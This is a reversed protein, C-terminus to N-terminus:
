GSLCPEEEPQRFRFGAAYRREFLPEDEPSPLPRVVPEMVTASLALEVRRRSPESTDAPPAAAILEELNRHVTTLFYDDGMFLSPWPGSRRVLGETGGVDLWVGRMREYPFGYIQSAAYLVGNLGGASAGALVDVVVADYATADRLVQPWFGTKGAADDIEATRAQDIEAVSGGIWVALSVGGRMALALRLETSM